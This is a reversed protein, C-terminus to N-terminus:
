AVHDQLWSGPSLAMVRDLDQPTDLDLALDPRTIVMANPHAALHRRFSGPGYSFHFRHDPSVILNTGGDYSPVLTTVRVGSAFVTGLSESSVLPLDAHVVAWPLGHEAATEVVAAGARNLGNGTFRTEDITRYGLGAAWSMVGPDATVIVAMAGSAAVAGITRAAIARGLHARERADLRGELRVKAIGFPKIPIAALLDATM